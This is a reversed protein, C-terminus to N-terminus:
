HANVIRGIARVRSLLYWAFEITLNRALRAEEITASTAHSGEVSAFNFFKQVLDKEKLSIHSNLLDLLPGATKDKLDIKELSADREQLLTRVARLVEELFSESVIYRHRWNRM